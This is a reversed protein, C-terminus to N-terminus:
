VMKNKVSNAIKIIEGSAKIIEKKTTFRSVGIRIACEPHPTGLALIVSSPKLDGSACASSGSVMIKNSGKIIVESPVNPITFCLNHPLRNKMTGNIFADPISSSINNWLLNRLEAM